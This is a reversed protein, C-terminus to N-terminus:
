TINNQKVAHYCTIKGTPNPQYTLMNTYAGEVQFLQKSTLLICYEILNIVSKYISRWTKVLQEQFHVNETISFFYPPSSPPLTSMCFTKPKM